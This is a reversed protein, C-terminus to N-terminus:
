YKKCIDGWLKYESLWFEEFHGPYVMMDRPLKRLWPKSVENWLKESGGPLRLGTEYDRFLSDGSFLLKGDIVLASSGASHGPLEKFLFECENWKTIYQDEFTREAVCVYDSTRVKEEVAQWTQLSCFIDFYHSMNKKSDAINQACKGSCFLEAGTREKWWNVGSIHDYHEHTLYIYDLKYHNQMIFQYVDESICPDILITRDHDILLYMNSQLYQSVIRKVVM